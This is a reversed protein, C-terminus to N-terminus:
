ALERGSSRRFIGEYHCLRLARRHPSRSGAVILNQARLSAILDRSVERGFIEGLEGRTLPQYYAV